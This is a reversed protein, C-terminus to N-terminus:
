NEAAASCAKICKGNACGEEPSCQEIVNGKGDVVAHLDDSCRIEDEDDDGFPDDGTPGNGTGPLDWSSDTGKACGFGLAVILLLSGVDRTISRMARVERM